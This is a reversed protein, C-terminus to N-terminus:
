RYQPPRLEELFLTRASGQPANGSRNSPPNRPNLHIQRFPSERDVHGIGGCEYFIRNDGNELKGFFGKRSPRQTRSVGAHQTTNRTADSCRTGRAPRDVMGFGRAEAVYFVENPQEQIETQNVTIAIKLAEDMTQPM